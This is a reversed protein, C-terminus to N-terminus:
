VGNSETKNVSPPSVSGGQTLEFSCPCVPRFCRIRLALVSFAQVSRCKYHQSRILVLHQIGSCLHNPSLNPIQPAPKLFLLGFTRNSLDGLYFTYGNKVNGFINNEQELLSM